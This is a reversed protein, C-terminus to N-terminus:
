PVLVGLEAGEVGPVTMVYPEEAYASATPISFTMLQWGGDEVLATCYQFPM